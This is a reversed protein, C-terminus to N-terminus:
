RRPSSSPPGRDGALGARALHRELAVQQRHRQAGVGDGLVAAQDAIRGLAREDHEGGLAADVRDQGALLVRADGLDREVGRVLEHGREVPHGVLVAVVDDAAVDLARRVLQQGSAVPAMWPSPVTM